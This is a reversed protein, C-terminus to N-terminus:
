TSLRTDDVMLGRERVPRSPISGGVKPDLAWREALQVVSRHRQCSDFRCISPDLGLSHAMEEVAAIGRVPSSGADKPNSIRHEDM